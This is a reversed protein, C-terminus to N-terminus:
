EMNTFLAEPPKYEMIQTAYLRQLVVKGAPTAALDKPPVELAPPNTIWTVFLLILANLGRFIAVM